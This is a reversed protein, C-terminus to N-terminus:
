KRATNEWRRCSELVLIIPEQKPDLVWIKTHLDFTMIKKQKGLPIKKQGGGGGLFFFFFFFDCQM